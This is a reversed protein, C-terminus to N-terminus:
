FTGQVVAAIDRDDLAPHHDESLAKEIFGVRRGWTELRVKAATFRTDLVHSDSGFSRYTQVKDVADLCSSFLGALGIVGVAFNIPEM